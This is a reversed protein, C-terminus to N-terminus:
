RTIEEKTGSSDFKYESPANTRINCVTKYTYIILIEVNTGVEAIHQCFYSFNRLKEFTKLFFETIKKNM